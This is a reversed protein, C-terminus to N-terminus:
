RYKIFLAKIEKREDVGTTTTATTTTKTGKDSETTETTEKYTHTEGAQYRELGLIVVADAGKKRAKEMIKKQMKDASIFDDATAIVHGMIVYDYRVDAETFYLDVYDTPPYEEGVYDIKTCAILTLFIVTSIVPRIM